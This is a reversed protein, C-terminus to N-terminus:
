GGHITWEHVGHSRPRQPYCELEIGNPTRSTSYCVDIDAFGSIPIRHYMITGSGPATSYLVKSYGRKMALDNDRSSDGDSRLDFRERTRTETQKFIVSKTRILIAGPKNAGELEQYVRIVHLKTDFPVLSSFPRGRSGMINTTNRNTTSPHWCSLNAKDIVWCLPQTRQM